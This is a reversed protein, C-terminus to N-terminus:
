IFILDCRTPHTRIRCSPNHSSSLSSLYVPLFVCPLRTATDGIRPHGPAPWCGGSAMLSAPACQGESGGPPVWQGVGGNGIGPVWFRPLLTKLGDLGHRQTVADRAVLVVQTRSQVAPSAGAETRTEERSRTPVCTRPHPGM